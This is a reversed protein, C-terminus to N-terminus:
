KIFISYIYGHDLSCLIKTHIKTAEKFFNLDILVIRGHFSFVVSVFFLPNALNQVAGVYGVGMANTLNQVAIGNVHCQPGKVSVRPGGRLMGHQAAWRCGQPCGLQHLLDEDAEQGAVWRAEKAGREYALRRAADDGALTEAM